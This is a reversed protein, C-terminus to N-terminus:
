SCGPRWTRRTQKRRRCTPLLRQAADSASTSQSVEKMWASRVSHSAATAALESALSEKDIARFSEQEFEALDVSGALLAM